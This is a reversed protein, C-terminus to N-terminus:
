MQSITGTTANIELQVREFDITTVDVIYSPGVRRIQHLEAVFGLQFLENLLQTLAIETQAETPTVPVSQQQANALGVPLALSVALAASCLIRIM